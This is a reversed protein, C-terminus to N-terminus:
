EESEPFGPGKLSSRAEASIPYVAYFGNEWAPAIDSAEVLAKDRRRGFVLYDARLREAEAKWVAWEPSPRKEVYPRHERRWARRLEKSVRNFELYLERKHAWAASLGHEFVYDTYCRLGVLNAHLESGVKGLIDKAFLSPDPAPERSPVYDGLKKTAELWSETEPSKAILFLPGDKYLYALPRGARIRLPLLDVTGMFRTTKPTASALAVLERYAQQEPTEAVRGAVIRRAGEGLEQSLETWEVAGHLSSGLLVAALAAYYLLRRKWALQFLSLSVVLLAAFVLFRVARILQSEPPIVELAHCVHHLGFYFALSFLVGLAFGVVFKLGQRAREGGRRWALVGLVLALPILPLEISFKVLFEGFGQYFTLWTYRVARVELWTQYDFPYTGGGVSLLAPSAFVLFSVGCLVMWGAKRVLSWSKPLFPALGCWVGLASGFTSVPHVLCLLGQMGMVVPWRRPENRWKFAFYLVWIVLCLFSLRPLVSINLGWFTGWGTRVPMLLLLANLLAVLRGRYLAHCFFYFGLPLFFTNLATLAYLAPQYSDFLVLSHRVLFPLLLHAFLGFRGMDGFLDSNAFLTPDSLAKAATLYEGLDGSIDQQAMVYGVGCVALLAFLVIPPTHYLLGGTRDNGQM